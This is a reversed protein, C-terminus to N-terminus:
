RRGGEQADGGAQRARRRRSPQGSSSRGQTMDGRTMRGQTAGRSRVGERRGQANKRRQTNTSTQAGGSSQSNNRSQTNGSGQANSGSEQAGGNGQQPASFEGAGTVGRYANEMSLSVEVDDIIGGRNVVARVIGETASVETVQGLYVDDGVGVKRLDGNQDNFVAKGGVISVLESKDLNILGRTNPPLQDMIVPFFPNINPDADALVKSPVPPLSGSEPASEGEENVPRWNSGSSSLGEPGGFYANISMNFSVMVQLKKRKDGKEEDQMETTGQEDNVETMLDIHNLNLDAVSYFQRNNEIKWIFRYLNAFYGRGTARMKYYSYADTQEVGQISIDFTEFGNQTLDNLYGVVEPSSLSGPVVKYRSKWKSMVQRAKAKSNTYETFLEEMEAQKMKAAKEAKELRQLEAPQRYFTVYSGVGVVVLLLVSVILTPLDLKDLM